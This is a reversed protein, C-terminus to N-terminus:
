YMWKGDQVSHYCFGHYGICNVFLGFTAANSQGHSEGLTLHVGSDVGYVDLIVTIVPEILDVASSLKSARRIEM